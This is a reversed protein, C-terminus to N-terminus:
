VCHTQTKRKYAVATELANGLVNWKGRSFPYTLGIVAQPGCSNTPQQKVIIKLNDPLALNKILKAPHEEDNNRLMDFNGNGRFSGVANGIRMSWTKVSCVRAMNQELLMSHFIDLIDLFIM